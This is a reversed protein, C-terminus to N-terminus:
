LFTGVNNNGCWTAQQALHIQCMRDSLISGIAFAKIEGDIRIIGGRCIHDDYQRLLRVIGEREYKMFEDENEDNKWNM